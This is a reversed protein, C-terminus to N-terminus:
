IAGCGRAPSDATEPLNLRIRQMADVFAQRAGDDDAASAVPLCLLPLLLVAWKSRTSM